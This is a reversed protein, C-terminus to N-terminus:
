GKAQLEGNKNFWEAPGDPHKPRSLLERIFFILKIM